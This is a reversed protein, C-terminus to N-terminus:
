KQKKTSIYFEKLLQKEHQIVPYFPEVYNVFSGGFENLFQDEIMYEYLIKSSRGETLLPMELQELEEIAQENLFPKKLNILQHNIILREKNSTINKLSKLPKMGKKMRDSNIKDAARCVENVMMPKVKIEPMYKYLTDEKVGGVGKINDSTDGCIIKMTLSNSYHYGFETYFNNKTIPVNLGLFLITIDYEFLQCFDRDNTLLYIDEKNSNNMVYHAILDDAEIEDVEIQRIYLEEVYEQIRKRQKLISEDKEAERKLEKPSLEIKRHWNKSKRNAKYDRDIRNRYIGGNQGDWCLVCKNIKHEKIYKRITTLFSYLGGIHGFNNTYNHKAGTFSRKLLYDSDVLLTRIKM